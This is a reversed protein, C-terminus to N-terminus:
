HDNTCLNDFSHTSFSKINEFIYENIYEDRQFLRKIEIKQRDPTFTPSTFGHDHLRAKPHSQLTIITDKCRERGACDLWPVFDWTSEFHTVSRCLHQDIYGGPAFGRVDVRDRLEPPLGILGNRTYINARSHPIALMTAGPDSNAHFDRINQQFERVGEYCAYENLAKKCTMLDLSPGLSPCFVGQVNYGTMNALHLLSDRFDTLENGIGNMFLIKKNPPLEKFNYNQSSQPNIFDNASYTRTRHFLPDNKKRGFNYHEEYKDEMNFHHVSPTQPDYSPASGLPVCFKQYNSEWTNYHFGGMVFSEAFLGFPDSYQLPNNHVYAYLNSGDTFGAPDPTTWRGLNPDYDRMGFAVLGTEEDIRRGAYQWPNNIASRLMKEGSPSLIEREGYVTYRYKEIIDGQLNLLTAINGHMDHLPIYPTGHIEIAVTPSLKNKGILRIEQCNGGKWRGIEDQGQYLFLQEEGNMTKTLRRNFADYSYTVENGECTVKILRDLADYTYEYPGNRILNGNFDYKLEGEGKKMLQNLANHQYEERDKSTRNSLSDFSYRHSCHGTESQIQYHDDYTYTYPINQIECALLNGVPDFGDSPVNQKFAASNITICHGLSDFAYSITGNNGPPKALTIQGALSHELDSHVYACQGNILRRIEKLDIANYIYETGTQDPYTITRARGTQDYTYHLSLGNALIETQLEDQFYHRETAKNSKLDTVKKTRDLLDYEYFYEVSQDSSTQMKLREFADYTYHIEKGDPKILAQKQGHKHRIRTVKREPTGSGETIKRIQGVANYSFLTVLTRIHKGNLIVEEEIKKQNGVLDYSLIQRAVKVNFPNLRVTEAIRNATDYTNITRYGLPDTTTQQLVKQGYDNIFETDYTIHTEHNLGDTIKIPKNWTNYETIVKQDGTQVLICNGRVDYDYFTSHLTKNDATKLHEEKIQDLEDYIKITARYAHPENGFYERIESIRGLSDYFQEIKRGNRVTKILRGAADYFFNTHNGEPDISDVLHFANYINVTRKIVEGGDVIEETIRGLPDRVYTTRTGNKAMKEMLQGDLSYIMEETTKDPYTVHIPQGRINVEILTTEGNADTISVPFGAIDYSKKLIPSTLVGDVPVEPYHIEIVRGFDDFCRRTKHGYANFSAKCNGLYDYSHSTVFEQDPHIEKQEILRNAFDYTNRITVDPSCQKILNDTSPDYSKTVTIERANTESILNGHLDYDWQLCYAPKKKEDDVHQKCLRGEPSYTYRSRKLLKKGENKAFDTHIWEESSEPLGIPAVTRPSLVTYHRETVYLLDNSPDQCGDDLIKEKLVFNHDYSYFERLRTKGDYSLYKAKLLDSNSKYEYRVRKGTSDTETLLLNCGDNSYTYTKTEREYGNELLDGKNLILPPSPRGTLKGCLSSTLVNGYSDYTFTRAHHINGAGDKFIKASLYGEKDWVFSEETYASYSSSDTGCYRIISTLRHEEDYIYRTKHNEADYVNTYGEAIQQRGDSKHKKMAAHYDFRHITISTQDTGVPAQLKKVRDLRFDDKKDIFIDGVEGGVHNVGDHYYDIHLFRRGEDRLKATIQLDRSLAKEKYHYTEPAAYPHKVDSLYYQDVTTRTECLNNKEKLHYRHHKFFYNLKRGDSTLLTQLIMDNGIPKESLKVSSYRKNTEKNECIIEAAGSIGVGKGEYRIRSGNIKEESLQGCLPWGEGTRGIKKFTKRNGAGSQSIITEDDPDFHLTQNKINTKGSLESAGNTLGKPVILKFPM